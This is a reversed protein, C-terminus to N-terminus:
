VYPIKYLSEDRENSSTYDQEIEISETDAKYKEIFRYHNWAQAHLVLYIGKQRRANVYFCISRDLSVNMYTGISTMGATRSIAHSNSRYRLRGGVLMYINGQM